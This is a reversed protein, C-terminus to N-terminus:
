HYWRRRIDTSDENTDLLGDNDDDLDIDDTVCDNDNDPLKIIRAPEPTYHPEVSLDLTDAVVAELM